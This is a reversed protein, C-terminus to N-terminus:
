HYDIIMAIAIRLIRTSRLSLFVINSYRKQSASTLSSKAAAFIHSASAYGILKISVPAPEELVSPDHSRHPIKPFNTAKYHLFACELLWHM